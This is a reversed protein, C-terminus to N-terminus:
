QTGKPAKNVAHRMPDAEDDCLIRTATLLNHVGPLCGGVPLHGKNVIEDDAGEGLQLALSFHKRVPQFPLLIDNAPEQASLGDIFIDVDHSDSNSISRSAAAPGVGAGAIVARGISLRQM